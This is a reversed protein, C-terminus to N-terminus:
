RGGRYFPRRVVTAPLRRGRVDMVLPTGPEADMLEDIRSLVHTYDEDTKILKHVM